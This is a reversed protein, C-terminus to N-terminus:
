FRYAVGVGFVWPDLDVDARIAGGNISVDTNFYSKKIDFNVAWHEDVEFDAGVQFNYSFGDEYDVSSVAGSNGGYFLMYGVGLGAYPRLKGEPNFHYQLTLHPPLVWTDGLDIITNTSMAHKSTALILEAAVNPTFFYSFDLEPTFANDAAADAALGTVTSDEDPDINLMRFRVLWREKDMLDFFGESKQEEAHASFSTLMTAGALMLVTLKNM